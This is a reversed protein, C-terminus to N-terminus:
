LSAKDPVRNAVTGAQIISAVMTNHWEDGATVGPFMDRIRAYGDILTDIANSGQWPTSAHAAKGEAQLELTLVGKQAVAVAYQSGDVILILRQAGYGREVMARTTMGGIEEDSSFLAGVSARGQCRILTQALIVANGLCDNTGRGVLQGDREFPVFQHDEAPVVDVHANLLVDPTKTEETAAFLVDRGDAHEVVCHLGEGTLYEFLVGSARNVNEIDASVPRLSILEKLLEISNKM